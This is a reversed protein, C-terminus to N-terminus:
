LSDDAEAAAQVSRNFGRRSFLGSEPEGGDPPTWDVFQVADPVQSRVHYGMSQNPCKTTGALLTGDATLGVVEIERNRTGGM